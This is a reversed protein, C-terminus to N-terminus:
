RAGNICFTLAKKSDCAKGISSIYNTYKEREKIKSLINRCIDFEGLNRHLEAQMLLYEDDTKETIFCLIERCNDEYKNKVSEGDAFFSGGDRVLDNMTRWLLIRLSLTDNEGGNYLGNNIAQCCESISLFKVSPTDKSKKNKDANDNNGCFLIFDEDAFRMKTGSYIELEHNSEVKMSKIFTGNVSAYDIIFFKNNKRIISAHRRAIYKNDNILFDAWSPDRGINIVSQKIFHKENNKIRIIYPIGNYAFTDFSFRDDIHTSEILTNEIKFFATCEHCRVFVPFEPLMPAISKGDSYYRAGVTNGSMLTGRLQYAGCSPCKIYEPLGPIM